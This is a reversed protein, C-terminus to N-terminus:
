FPFRHRLPPPREIEPPLGVDKRLYDPLESIRRLVPREGDPRRALIAVLRLLLGSSRNVPIYLSVSPM